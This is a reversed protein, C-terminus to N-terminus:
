AIKTHLFVLCDEEGIEERDLEFSQIAWKGEGVNVVAMGDGGDGGLTTYCGGIRRKRRRKGTSNGFQVIHLAALGEEM